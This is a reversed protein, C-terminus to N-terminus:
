PPNMPTMTQPDIVSIFPTFPTLLAGVGRLTERRLATRDFVYIHRGRLVDIKWLTLPGEHVVTYGKPTRMICDPDGCWCTLLMGKGHASSLDLLRRTDVRCRRARDFRPYYGGFESAPELDDIRLRLVLENHYRTIGLRLQSLRGGLRSLHGAVTVRGRLSRAYGSSRAVHYQFQAAGLLGVPTRRLGEHELWLRLGACLHDFAGLVCRLVHPTARLDRALALAEPSPELARRPDAPPQTDLHVFLAHREDCLEGVLVGVSEGTWAIPSPKMGFPRFLDAAISMAAKTEDLLPEEFQSVDNSEPEPRNKPESMMMRQKRM